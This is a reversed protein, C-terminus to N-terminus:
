YSRYQKPKYDKRRWMDTAYVYDNAQLIDGTKGKLVVGYKFAREKFAAGTFTDPMLLLLEPITMAM